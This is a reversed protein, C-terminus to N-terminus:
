WSYPQKLCVHSNSARKQESILKSSPMCCTNLVYYKIVTYMLLHFKLVVDPFIRTNLFNLSLWTIQNNKILICKTTLIM